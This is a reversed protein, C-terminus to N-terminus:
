IELHETRHGGDDRSRKWSVWKEFINYRPVRHVVQVDYYGVRESGDWFEYPVGGIYWCLHNCFEELFDFVEKTKTRIRRLFCIIFKIKFGVYVHM